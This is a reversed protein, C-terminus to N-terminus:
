GERTLKIKQAYIASNRVFQSCQLKWTGIPQTKLSFFHNHCIQFNSFKKKM